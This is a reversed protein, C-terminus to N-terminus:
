APRRAPKRECPQRECPVGPLGWDQALRLAEESTVTIGARKRAELTQWFGLESEADSRAPRDPDRYATGFPQGRLPVAAFAAGKPDVLNALHRLVKALPARM